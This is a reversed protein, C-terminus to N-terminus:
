ARRAPIVAGLTDRAGALYDWGRGHDLVALARTLTDRVRELDARTLRSGTM